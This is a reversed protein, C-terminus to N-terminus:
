FVLVSGKEDSQDSGIIFRSKPPHIRFQNGNGRLRKMITFIQSYQMYEADFILLADSFNEDQFIAKSASKLPIDLNESLGKLLGLNETFVIAKEPKRVSTNKKKSRKFIKLLSVGLGVTGNFLSNTNFHKKYFIRMAGYFRDYYASDKETSEGKYHLVPTDGLYCNTYGAKKIKYSFDIDEGYMFYDEDFGGVENYVSRKLLMFAGVLIPVEGSNEESVQKAYYSGGMGFLKLLSHTPTPVNRKSEPLFHGTGDMLYTGLAGM